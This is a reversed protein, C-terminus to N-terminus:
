QSKSIASVLTQNVKKSDTETIYVRHANSSWGGFRKVSLESCGEKFAVTSATKRISHLSYKKADMGMGTLTDAWMERVRTLPIPITTGPKPFMPQGVKVTPSFKTVLSINYLPCLERSSAPHLTVTKSQGAKQLNKAHKIHVSVVTTLVVDERTLHHLPNFARISPPAVESQRLGAFYITLLIARITIGEQTNPLALIVKKFINLPVAPKARSKYEPDREVADLARRVRFNNIGGMHGGAMTLYVRVHSIKGTLTGPALKDLM